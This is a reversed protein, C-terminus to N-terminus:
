KEKNVDNLKRSVKGIHSLANKRQEKPIQSTNKQKISQM